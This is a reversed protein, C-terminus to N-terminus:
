ATRARISSALRTWCTWIPSVAIMLLPNSELEQTTIAGDKDSDFARLLPTAVTNNAKIIQNLGDAIAPLLRSRFEEVTVGGGL